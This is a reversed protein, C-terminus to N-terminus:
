LSFGTHIRTNAELFHDLAAQDIPLAAKCLQKAALSIWRM